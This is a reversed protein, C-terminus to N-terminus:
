PRKSRFKKPTFKDRARRKSDLFLGQLERMFAIEDEESLEGGAFMAASQELISEAQALGRKGFKEAAETLFDEDETLFYNVDVDFYAALKHYIERSHPYSVGKEYNIMTRRTIGIAKSVDEQLLGRKKRQEKLKDGFKM